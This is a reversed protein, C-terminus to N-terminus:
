PCHCCCATEGERGSGGPHEGGAWSCASPTPIRGSGNSSDGVLGAERSLGALRFCSWSQLWGGERGWVAPPLLSLLLLPHPLTSYLPFPPPLPAPTPQTRVQRLLVKFFDGAAVEAACDTQGQFCPYLWGVSNTASRVAGKVFDQTWGHHCTSIRYIKKNRDSM